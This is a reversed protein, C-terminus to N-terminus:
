LIDNYVYTMIYIHYYRYFLEKFDSENMPVGPYINDADLEEADDDSDEDFIVDDGASWNWWM